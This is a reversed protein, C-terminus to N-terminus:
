IRGLLRYWIYGLYEHYAWQLRSLNDLSPIFRKFFTAIREGAGTNKPHHQSAWICAPAPIPAMQLKKAVALARRLDCAAAVLIFPDSGVLKKVEYLNEYTNRSKGEVILDKAPAGMQQIFDAMMAAVPKEGERAIGGSLILAAGPILRYLRLGESIRCMTQESVKSTIPFGPNEEAYGALVVIRNIRPSEPPALMPPYPRELSLMLYEALPSFLFVLFLLGGWILFRHGLRSHRRAASILLGAAFLITMIGLPSFAIEILRKAILM